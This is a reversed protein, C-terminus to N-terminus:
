ELGMDVYQLGEHAIELTEIAIESKSADYDSMEWKVPLGNVFRWRGLETMDTGLQIITGNLRIRQGTHTAFFQNRWRLLDSSGTFGRKFVLNSLKAGGVLKRSGLNDGGERLDVIETEFKLGSVSKFFTDQQDGGAPPSGEKPEEPRKGTFQLSVKFCFTALPDKRSTPAM